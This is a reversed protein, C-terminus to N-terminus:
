EDFLVRYRLDTAGMRILDGDTLPAAGDVRIANVWTGNRSKLDKVDIGTVVRALLKIDGVTRFRMGARAFYLPLVPIGERRTYFYYQGAIQPATITGISLLQTLRQHLLERGPLPDLIGRTYALEQRVYEQTEPSAADELWRYPDAIKHGQVVDEVADVRAKPPAAPATNASPSDEAWVAVAFMLLCFLIWHLRIGGSM